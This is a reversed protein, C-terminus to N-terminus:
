LPGPRPTTRPGSWGASASAGGIRRHSRWLQPLVARLRADTWWQHGAWNLAEIRPETHNPTGPAASRHTSISPQLKNRILVRIRINPWYYRKLGNSYVTYEIARYSHVTQEFRTVPLANRAVQGAQPPRRKRTVPPCPYRLHRSLRGGRVPDARHGNCGDARGTGDLAPPQGTKVNM